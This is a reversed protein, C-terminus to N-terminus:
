AEKVSFTCCTDGHLVCSTQEVETGLVRQMLSRDIRCVEPHRQGIYLYPCNLETLVISGNVRSVEAMFGEEGLIGVLRQLRQELTGTLAGINYKAAVSAAMGDIIMEVQEPPLTAKLQDLLSDVLVHYKNPFYRQAADTIKFIHKPRGVGERIAEVTILLEAQLTNLHHRITIPSVDLAAALSAVTAQRQSKILDLVAMRTDQM